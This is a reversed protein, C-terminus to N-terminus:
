KKVSALEIYVRCDTSYGHKSLWEYVNAFCNTVIYKKDKNKYVASFLMLGNNEWLCTEDIFVHKKCVSTKITEGDVRVKKGNFQRQLRKELNNKGIFWDTFSCSRANEFTENQSFIIKASYEVKYINATKVSIINNEQM